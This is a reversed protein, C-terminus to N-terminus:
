SFFSFFTDYLNFHNPGLPIKKKIVEKLKKKKKKLKYYPYMWAQNCFYFMCWKENGVLCLTIKYQSYIKFYVRLYPRKCYKLYLLSM